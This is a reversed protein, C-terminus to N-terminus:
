DLSLSQALLQPHLLVKLLPLLKVRVKITNPSPQPFSFLFQLLEAAKIEASVYLSNLQSNFFQFHTRNRNAMLERTFLGSHLLYTAAAKNWEACLLSSSVLLIVPFTIKHIMNQCSFTGNASVTHDLHIKWVTIRHFNQLELIYLYNRIDALRIFTPPSPVFLYFRKWDFQLCFFRGHHNPGPQPGIGVLAVRNSGKNSPYPVPFIQQGTPWPLLLKIFTFAFATCPFLLFLFISSGM